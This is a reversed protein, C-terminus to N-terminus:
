WVLMFFCGTNWPFSYFIYCQISCAANNMLSTFNTFLLSSLLDLVYVSIDILLKFSKNNISWWIHLASRLRFGSVWLRLDDFPFNRSDFLRSNDLIQRFKGELSKLKQNGGRSTLVKEVGFNGVSVQSCDILSGWVEYVKPPTFEEM